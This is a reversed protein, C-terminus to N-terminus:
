RLVRCRLGERGRPRVNGQSTNQDPRRTRADMRKLTESIQRTNTALNKLAGVTERVVQATFPGQPAAHATGLVVDRSFLGAFWVLVFMVVIKADVKM